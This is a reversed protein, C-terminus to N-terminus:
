YITAYNLQFYATLLLGDPLIAFTSLEISRKYDTRKFSYQTREEIVNVNGDMSEDIAKKVQGIFETAEKCPRIVAFPIKNEVQQIICVANQSFLFGNFDTLLKTMTRKQEM